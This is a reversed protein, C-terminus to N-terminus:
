TLPILPYVNRQGHSSLSAQAMRQTIQEVLEDMREDKHTLHSVRSQLDSQRSFLEQVAGVNHM